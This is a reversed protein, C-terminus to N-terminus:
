VLKNLIPIRKIKIDNYIVYLKEITKGKIGVKLLKVREQQTELM